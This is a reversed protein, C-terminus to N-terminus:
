TLRLRSNPPEQAMAVIPWTDGCAIRAQGARRINKAANLDAHEEHGCSTCRFKSQTRRNEPSIHGCTSCTQSTHQPNILVVQGGRWAQKYELQRRFEFWGQDLISKNLGAKARVNKGPQEKTGKASASMNSGKLDELVVVAHNKSIATSNKHLFDLRADAIRSHLRTIKAKQKKWNNIFCDRVFAKM